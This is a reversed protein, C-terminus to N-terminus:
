DRWQMHESILTYCVEGHLSIKDGCNRLVEKLESQGLGWSTGRITKGNPNIDRIKLRELNIPDYGFGLFLIQEAENLLKKALAFDADRVDDIDEHIIKIHRRAVELIDNDYGYHYPRNPEGPKVQWPLPGLSGHLHIIPIKNLVELCDKIERRYSNQLSTMFFHEVSRDYNYTIISLTNKGFDEFSANMNNYLLRLWSDKYTFLDEENEKPILTAAIALKGIELLDERHELFADVSNRGSKYFKERFDAMVTESHGLVGLNNFIQQGKQFQRSVIDSLELGTPFGFPKSAGAGLVLVTRKTLM